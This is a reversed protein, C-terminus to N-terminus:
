KSLPIKLIISTGINATSEITLGYTDGYILKARDNVNKLGYGKSQNQLLYPIQDESIGIGNDNVHFLICKDVRECIITIKGRGDLKNEIGHLIANEVLPQLMLNPMQCLQLSTDIKYDVDFSNSHMILQINIYSEVNLLEDAITTINKGKNLTTRYFNSLLQAMQSIDNAHIRLARWNIISLSNYLFHPNIQAQLAKIEYEKQHIKAVYVEDILHKIRSVMKDFGRILDGIEDESNSAVTVELTGSEVIKINERLREIRFVMRRSFLRSAIFVIIYCFLILIIVTISIWQASSTIQNTPEYLYVNWNPVSLNSHMITYKQKNLSFGNKSSNIINSLHYAVKSQSAYVINNKNDTVIVNTGHKVLAKLSTFTNDYNVKIVWINVKPNPIKTNLIRRACFLENNSYYWKTVVSQRIDAYWKKSAIKKIPIVTNGHQPLNTGTYLTVGKVGNILNQAIIFNTDFVNNLANYMDYTNTYHMNSANVIEQNFSLTLIIKNYNELQNNLTLSTQNLTAQLDNKARNILFSRTEIFSFSGLAVLPIMSVLLFALMTKQRFNMKSLKQQLCQYINNM